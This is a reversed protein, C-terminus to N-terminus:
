AKPHSGRRKRRWLLLGIGGTALLGLSGPEPVPQGAYIREGVGAYAYDVVTFANHPVGTEMKVQLWGYQTGAGADFSFGIYGRGPELFQSYTYGGWYAMTGMNVFSRDQGALTSVFSGFKLRSVYSYGDVKFGALRAIGAFQSTNALAVGYKVQEYTSGSHMMLLDAQNDGTLDIPLSDYRTIFDVSADLYENIPGSYYIGADASEHTGLVAAAGAAAYGAWRVKSLISTQQRRNKRPTTSM